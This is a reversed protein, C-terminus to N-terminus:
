WVNVRARALINHATAENVVIRARIRLVGFAPPEPQYFQVDETGIKQFLFPNDAAEVPMTFPDGTVVDEAVTFGAVSTDYNWRWTGRAVQVNSSDSRYVMFDLTAVINTNDGYATLVDSLDIDWDYPNGAYVAGPWVHYYVQEFTGALDAGPSTVALWRGPGAAPQIVSVGDDAATSTRDLRFLIAGTLVLSGQNVPGTNIARLSAVDPRSTLLRYSPTAEIHSM